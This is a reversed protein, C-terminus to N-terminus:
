SSIRWNSVFYLCMITSTCLDIGFHFDTKQICRVEHMSSSVYRADNCTQYEIADRLPPLLWRESVFQKWQARLLVCKNREFLSGDMCWCVNRKLYIIRTTYVIFSYRLAVFPLLATQLVWFIRMRFLYMELIICRNICYQVLIITKM